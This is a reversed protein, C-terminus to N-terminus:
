VVWADTVLARDCDAREVSDVGETVESILEREVEGADEELVPLTVACNRVVTTETLPLLVKLLTLVALLTTSAAAAVDPAGPSTPVLPPDPLEPM